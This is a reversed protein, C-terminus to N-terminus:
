YAKEKSTSAKRLTGLCYVYVELSHMNDFLQFQCSNLM